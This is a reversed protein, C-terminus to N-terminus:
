DTSTCPATGREDLAETTTGIQLKTLATRAAHAFADLAAEVEPSLREGPGFARGGLGLFVGRPTPRGLAVGLRLASAPGLDHSSVSPSALAAEALDALPLEVLAGSAVGHRVVDLLVCPRDLLDLLGAGPRGALVVELGEDRLREAVRLAAADDSAFRNGLAIVRPRDVDISPDTGADISAETRADISAETRAGLSVRTSM